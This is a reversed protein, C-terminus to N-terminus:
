ARQLSLLIEISDVMDVPIVTDRTLNGSTVAFLWLIGISGGIVVGCVLVGLALERSFISIDVIVSIIVWIITLTGIIFFSSAVKTYGIFGVVSAKKSVSNMM